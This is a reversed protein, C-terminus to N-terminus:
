RREEVDCKVEAGCDRCSGKPPRVMQPMACVPCRAAVFEPETKAPLRTTTQRIMTRQRERM